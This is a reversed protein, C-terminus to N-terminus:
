KKLITLVSIINGIKLHRAAYTHSHSLFLEFQKFILFSMLQSYSISLLIKNTFWSVRVLLSGELGSCLIPPTQIKRECAFRM